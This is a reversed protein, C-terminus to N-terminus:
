LFFATMMTLLLPVWGKRRDSTWVCNWSCTEDDTLLKGHFDGREASVFRISHGQGLDQLRRQRAQFLLNVNTLMKTQKAKALRQLSSPQSAMRTGTLSPQFVMRKRISDLRQSGNLAIASRLDSTQFPTVCNLFLSEISSWDIDAYPRRLIISDGKCLCALRYDRLAQKELLYRYHYQDYHWSCWELESWSNRRWARERVSREQRFCHM